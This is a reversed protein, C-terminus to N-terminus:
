WSAGPAIGKSSCGSWAAICPSTRVYRICASAKRSADRAAAGVPPQRWVSLRKQLRLPVRGGCERGHELRVDSGAESIEGRAELPGAGAEEVDADADGRERGGHAARPGLEADHPEVRELLREGNCSLVERPRVKRIADLQTM